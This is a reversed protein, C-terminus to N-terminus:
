RGHDVAPDDFAVTRVRTKAAALPHDNFGVLAVAAKQAEIAGNRDDGVDIRLMEVVVAAEVSHSLREHFEDLVNREITRGDQADIVRLHLLNDGPHAVPSDYSVAKGGLCVPASVVNARTLATIKKVGDMGVPASLPPDNRIYRQR